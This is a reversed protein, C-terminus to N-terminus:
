KQLKRSIRFDLERDMDRPMDVNTVINIAHSASGELQKDIRVRPVELPYRQQGRRQLILKGGNHSFAKSWNRKGARFGKQAQTAGLSMASVDRANFFVFANRTQPNSRKLKVRGRIVKQKVGVARSTNRVTLTVIKSGGRNIVRSVARDVESKGGVRELLRQQRRVEKTFRSSAVDLKTTVM